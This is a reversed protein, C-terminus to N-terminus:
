PAKCPARVLECRDTVSVRAVKIHKLVSLIHDALIVRAGLGYRGVCSQWSIFMVEQLLGTSSFTQDLFAQVILIGTM